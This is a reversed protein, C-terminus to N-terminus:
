NCSIRSTAARDPLPRWGQECVQLRVEGAQHWHLGGFCQRSLGLASEAPPIVWQNGLYNSGGKVTHGNDPRCPVILVNTM